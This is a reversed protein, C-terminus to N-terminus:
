AVKANLDMPFHARKRGVLPEVVPARSQDTIMLPGSMAEEALRAFREEYKLRDEAEMNYRIKRVVSAILNTLISLFAAAILLACFLVFTDM